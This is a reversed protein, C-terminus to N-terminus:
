NTALLIKCAFHSVNKGRHVVRVVLDVHKHKLERNETETETPVRWILHNVTHVCIYARSWCLLRGIICRAICTANHWVFIDKKSNSYILARKLKNWIRNRFLCCFSLSCEVLSFRVTNRSDIFCKGDLSKNKKISLDGTSSQMIQVQTYWTGFVMPSPTLPQDGTWCVRHIWIKNKKAHSVITQM